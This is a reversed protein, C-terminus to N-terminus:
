TRESVVPIELGVQSWRPRAAPCSQDALKARVAVLCGCHRCTTGGFRVDVCDRCVALREGYVRDDVLRADPHVALYEVLLRQVEREPVRAATARECGKCLPESM